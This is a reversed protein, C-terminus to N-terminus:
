DMLGSDIVFDEEDGEIHSGQNPRSINPNTTMQPQCYASQPRQPKQKQTHMNEQGYQEEHQEDRFHQSPHQFEPQNLQEQYQQQNPEELGTYGYAM